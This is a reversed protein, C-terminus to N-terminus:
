YFHIVDQLINIDFVIIGPVASLRTILVGQIRANKFFQKLIRNRNFYSRSCESLLLSLQM